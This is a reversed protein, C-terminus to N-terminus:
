GSRLDSSRTLSAISLVPRLTEHPQVRCRMQRIEEEGRREEGRGEEGRRTRGRVGRRREEM